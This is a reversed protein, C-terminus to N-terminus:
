FVSWCHLLSQKWGYSYRSLVFSTLYHLAHCMPVALKEDGSLVKTDNLRFFAEGDVLKEDCLCALQKLSVVKQLIECGAAEIVEEFQCFLGPSDACQLVTCM